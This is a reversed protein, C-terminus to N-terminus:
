DQPYAQLEERMHERGAQLAEELTCAGGPNGKGYVTFCDTNEWAGAGLSVWWNFTASGNWVIFVGLDENKAVIVEGEDLMDFATGSM